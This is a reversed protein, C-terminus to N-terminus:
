ARYTADAEPECRFNCVEFPRSGKPLKRPRAPVPANRPAPHQRLPPSPSLPPRAALCQPSGSRLPPSHYPLRAAGRLVRRPSAPAPLLDRSALKPALAPTPDSPLRALPCGRDLRLLLHLAVKTDPSFRGGPSRVAGHASCEWDAERGEARRRAEAPSQALGALGPPYNLLLAAPVPLQSGVEAAPGSAQQPVSGGVPTAPTTPSPEPTALAVASSTDIRDMDKDATPPSPPATPSSFLLSLSERCLQLLSLSLSICSSWPSQLLPPPPPPPPPPDDPAPAQPLPDPPLPAGRSGLDKRTRQPGRAQARPHHCRLHSPPLPPRPSKTPPLSPPPLPPSRSKSGPRSPPSPSSQSLPWQSHSRNQSSAAVAPSSFPSPHLLPSPVHLSPSALGVGLARKPHPPPSPTEPPHEGVTVSAEAVRVAGGRAGAGVSGLLALKLSSLSPVAVSPPLPLHSLVFPTLGAPLLSLPNWASPAAVRPQPTSSSHSTPPSM